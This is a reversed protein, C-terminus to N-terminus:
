ALLAYHGLFLFCFNHQHTVASLLPAVGMEVGQNRSGQNRAIFSVAGNIIHHNLAYIAGQLIKGWGQLMSGGVQCQLKSTESLGNCQETLGAAESHHPVHNSLYIGHAQGVAM